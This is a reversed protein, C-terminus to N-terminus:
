WTDSVSCHYYSGSCMTAPMLFLTPNFRINGTGYLATFWRLPQIGKSAMLWNLHRMEAIGQSLLALTTIVQAQHKPRTGFIKCCSTLKQLPGHMIVSTCRSSM